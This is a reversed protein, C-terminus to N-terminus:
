ETFSINEKYGILNDVNEGTGNVTGTQTYEMITSNADNTTVKGFLGGATSDATINGSNSLFSALIKMSSSYSGSHDAHVEVRGMIGGVNVTGKVDGTNTMNTMTVTYSGNNYGIHIVDIFFGFIGGSYAGGNVKGNNTLGSLTANGYLDLRGALGGVYNSASATINGKNTCDTFVGNAYGAIGGVYAGEATYQINTANECGSFSYGYGAYGGVYALRTTGDLYFGDAVIKTGANSSDSIKINGIWGAFGGIFGGHNSTLGTITGSVTSDSINSAPDNSYALGFLGGVEYNGTINGTNTLISATLKVLSTYSGSHDAYVTLRGALGGVLEIGKINGSNTINTVTLTYYCNNYGIHSYELIYGAVGGVYTNGSIEGSNTLTIMSHNTAWISIMGVVGGVYSSETATINATNKCNNLTGHAYGTIGGVYNGKATYTIDTANTLNDFMYGYGTYGGIYALRTTGDLYYGKAVIQTGENSSNFIKVNELQGVFGGIFGGENSEIGTVTGSSHSDSITSGSDNSYGHGFLGGVYQKGSVNGTNGLQSATLKIISTYSGSHDAYVRVRGAVGGVYSNGTVEGENQFNTMTFTFYRNNYGVHTYDYIYGVVGGVNVDGVIKGHNSLTLVSFNGAASLQGVVGGVNNIGTVTGFNENESISGGEFLAVVGGAVNVNTGTSTVTAYNKCKTLTGSAMRGVLGGAYNFTTGSTIEGSKVIVGSLTGTLVGCVGGVAYSNTYDTATLTVNLNEFNVDQLTGSLTTFMGTNMVSDPLVTLNRITHENGVITGKFEFPDWAVGAMDVDFVLQYKASPDNKVALLTNVDYILIGNSDDLQAMQAMLTVDRDINWGTISNGEGDTLLTSNYYWGIFQYAPKELVPFKFPEGFTVQQTTGDLDYGICDFSVTYVKPTLKVTLSVDHKPMNFTYFADSSVLNEGEYWGVLTYGVPAPFVLDVADGELYYEEVAVEGASAPDVTVTVTFKQAWHAYLMTEATVNLAKVSNGEGDSYQVGGTMSDYWGLFLYGTMAPIYLKYDKGYEKTVTTSSSGNRPNLTLTVDIGKFKPYLNVIDATGVPIEKIPESTLEQDTCWGLFEHNPKQADPLRVSTEITYNVNPAVCTEGAGVNLAVTYVKAQVDAYFVTFTTNYGVMTVRSGGSMSENSYWGAVEYGPDLPVTLDRLNLAQGNDYVRETALETTGHMFKIDKYHLVIAYLVTDGTIPEDSYYDPNMVSENYSWGAFEYGDGDNFAPLTLVTDPLVEETQNEGYEGYVYTVTYKKTKFSATFSVTKNTEDFIYHESNLTTYIPIGEGDSVVDGNSNKWGEFMQGAPIESPVPFVFLPSGYAIDTERSIETEGSTFVLSYTKIQWQIYLVDDKQPESVRNGLENYYQIGGEANSYAGLFTYGERQMYRGDLQWTDTSLNYVNGTDDNANLQFYETQYSPSGGGGGGGGGGISSCSNAIVSIISSITSLVIMIVFGIVAIKIIKKM